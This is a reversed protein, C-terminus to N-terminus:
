ILHCTRKKMWHRLFILTRGNHPAVHDWMKLEVMKAVQKDDKYVIETLADLVFKALNDIDPTQTLAKAKLYQEQVPRSQNGGTFFSNPLHQFFIMQMAVPQNPFIPFTSRSLGHVQELYNVCLEHFELKKPSAKEVVHWFMKKAVFGPCSHQDPCLTPNGM